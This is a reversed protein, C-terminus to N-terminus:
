RDPAIRYVRAATDHFMAAREATSYGTSLRKFANYV